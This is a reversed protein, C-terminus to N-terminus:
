LADCRKRHSADAFQKIITPGWEERVARGRYLDGCATPDDQALRRPLSMMAAALALHIFPRM